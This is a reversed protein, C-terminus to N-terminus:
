FRKRPVNRWPERRRIEYPYFFTPPLVEIEGVKSMGLLEMRRQKDPLRRRRLPKLPLGDPGTIIVTPKKAGWDIAVSFPAPRRPRGFYEDRAAPPIYSYSEEFDQDTLGSPLMWRPPRANVLREALNHFISDLTEASLPPLPPPESKRTGITYLSPGYARIQPMARPPYRRKLEEVSIVQIPWVGPQPAPVCQYLEESPVPIVEVHLPDPEPEVAVPPGSVIVPFRARLGWAFADLEDRDIQPPPVPPLYIRGAEIHRRMHEVAAIRSALHIVVEDTLVAASRDSQNSESLSALLNERAAGQFFADDTPTDWQGLRLKLPPLEPTM